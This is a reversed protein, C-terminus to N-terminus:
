RYQLGAYAYGFRKCHQICVEPTLNNPYEKMYGFMRNDGSDKFCGLYELSREEIFFCDPIVKWTPISHLIKIQSKFSIHKYM